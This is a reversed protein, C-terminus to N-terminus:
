RYSSILRLDGSEGLTPEGQELCTEGDKTSHQFNVNLINFISICPISSSVQSIERPTEFLRDAAKESTSFSGICKGAHKPM